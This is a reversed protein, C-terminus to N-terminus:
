GDRKSARRRGRGATRLLEMPSVGPDPLVADMADVHGLARLVRLLTALQVDGGRELSRLTRESIGADRALAGQSVNQRLRASRVRRGLEALIETTTKSHFASM